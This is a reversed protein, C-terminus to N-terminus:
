SATDRSWNVVTFASEPSPRVEEWHAHWEGENDCPWGFNSCWKVRPVYRFYAEEVKLIEGIRQHDVNDELDRQLMERDLGHGQHIRGWGDDNVIETPYQVGM